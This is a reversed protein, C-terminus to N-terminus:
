SLRDTGLELMLYDLFFAKKKSKKVRSSPVSLSDQFAPLSNDIYAAYFALVTCIEDVECHLGSIV